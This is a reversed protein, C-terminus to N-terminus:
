SAPVETTFADLAGAGRLAALVREAHLAPDPAAADLLAIVAGGGGAGSLKAVAGELTAANCAVEVADTSVGLDRLLSRNFSMAAGLQPREKREALATKALLVCSTISAMAKGFVDPRTDKLRRVGAVLSATTGTRPLIGIAFRVPAAVKLREVTFVGDAGRRFLIPRSWAVASADIGSPTGHALRELDNAKLAVEEALLPAAALARVLAVALAASSGLGSGLPITSEIKVKAGKGAHGAQDLAARAMKAALTTDVSRTDEVTVEPADTLEVEVDTGRAAIPVAIAPVGHVVAHEGLLIAKANAHGHM